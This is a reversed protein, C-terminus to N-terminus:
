EYSYPYSNTIPVPKPECAKDLRIEFFLVTKRLFVIDLLNESDAFFFNLILLESFFNNKRDFLVKKWCSVCWNSARFFVYYFANLTM